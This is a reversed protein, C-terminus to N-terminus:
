VTEIPEINRGRCFICIGLIVLNIISLAEFILSLSAYIENSIFCFVFPSLLIESLIYAVTVIISVRNSFGCDSIRRYIPGPLFVIFIFMCAIKYINVGSLIDTSTYMSELFKNYEEMTTINGVEPTLVIFSVIINILMLFLFGYNFERRGTKGKFLYLKSFLAKVAEIFTVPKTRVVNIKIEELNPFGCEPCYKAGEPLEKGCNKCYM